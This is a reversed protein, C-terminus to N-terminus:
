KESVPKKTLFRLIINGIAFIATVAEVPITWGFASALGVVVPLLINFDVTKSNVIQKFNMKAVKINGYYMRHIVKETELIFLPRQWELGELGLM